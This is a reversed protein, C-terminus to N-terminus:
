ILVCSIITNFDLKLCFLWITIVRRFFDFKGSHSFKRLFIRLSYHDYFQIHFYLIKLIYGIIKRKFSHIFIGTIKDFAFKKMELSNDYLKFNICFACLYVLFYM